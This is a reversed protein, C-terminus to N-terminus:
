PPPPSRRRRRAPASGCTSWASGARGPGRGARPRPRRGAPTAPPHLLADRGPRAPRRRAPPRRGPGAGAALPLPVAPGTGRGAGARRLHPPRRPFVPEPGGGVVAVRRVAGPQPRHHGPAPHRRRQPLRLPARLPQGPRSGPGGAAPGRGPRRPRGTPGAAALPDPQRGSGVRRGGGGPGGPRRRRGVALAAAARRRGAPPRRARRFPLPRPLSGGAVPRGAPPAGVLARVRPRSSGSGPSCTPPRRISRPPALGGAGPPSPRGPPRELPDPSRGAQGRRGPQRRRSSVVRAELAGAPRAASRPRGPGADACRSRRPRGGPGADRRTAAAAPRRGRRRLHHPGVARLRLPAMVAQAVDYLTDPECPWPSRGSGGVAQPRWRAVVVRRLGPPGGAASLRDHRQLPSGLERLLPRSRRTRSSPRPAHLLGPHGLAAPARGRTAADVGHHPLGAQLYRPVQRREVVVGQDDRREVMDPRAGAFTRASTTSTCTSPRRTAARRGTGPRPRSSSRSTAGNVVEAQGPQSPSRRSRQDDGPRGKHWTFTHGTLM